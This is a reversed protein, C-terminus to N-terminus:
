SNKSFIAINPHADRGYSVPKAWAKAQLKCDQRENNSIQYKGLAQEARNGAVKAAIFARQCIACTDFFGELM